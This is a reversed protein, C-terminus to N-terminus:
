LNWVNRVLEVFHEDNRLDQSVASYFDNWEQRDIKGEGFQDNFNKIFLDFAQDETIEGQKVKPHTSANFAGRLDRINILGNKDKDFKNFAENVVAQRTENLEGRILVLFDEFNVSGDIDKDFYQVLIESDIKPFLIGIDRLGCLFEDKNIKGKGYYSKMGRFIKGLIRM